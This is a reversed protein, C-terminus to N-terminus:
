HLRSGKGSYRKHTQEFDFPDGALLNRDARHNKFLWGLFIDCGTSDFKRHGRGNKYGLASLVDSPVLPANRGFYYFDRSILV